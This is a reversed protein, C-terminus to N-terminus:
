EKTQPKLGHCSPMEYHKPHVSFPCSSPAIVKQTARHLRPQSATRGHVLALEIQLAPDRANCVRQCALAALARKRRAALTQRQALSGIEPSTSSFALQGAGRRSSGGYAIPQDRRGQAVRTRKWGKTGTGRATAKSEWEDRGRRM